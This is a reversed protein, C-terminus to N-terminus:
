TPPLGHRARFATILPLCNAVIGDILAQGKAATAPRPDGFTGSSSIEHLQIPHHGFTAPFDPYEPAAKDMQVADPRLALLMSTEVEDAHFFGPGAPTSDCIRAALPELGPYDLNLSPLGEALLTRAALAIPDRNGFHGNLTVLAPLGMRILGRGIDTILARLTEPSASITGPFSEASWTEGYPLAPLLIANTAQALARAVGIALDTDVTLPLHPGHQEVAGIPLIALPRRPLAAEVEPWTAHALDIM